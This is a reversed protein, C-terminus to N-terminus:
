PFLPPDIVYGYINTPPIGDFILVHTKGEADPGSNIQLEGTDLIYLTVKGNESTMLATNESPPNDIYPAIIDQTIELALTGNGDDNIDYIHLAPEGNKDTANYAAVENESNGENIPLSNGAGLYPLVRCNENYDAPDFTYYLPPEEIIESSGSSGIIQNGFIVTITWPRATPPYGIHTPSGTGLTIAGLLVEVSRYPSTEGSLSTGFGGLFVNNADHIEFYIRPMEGSFSALFSAVEIDFGLHTTTASSDGIYPPAVGPGVIIPLTGCNGGPNSERVFINRIDISNAMVISNSITLITFILTELLLIRKNM